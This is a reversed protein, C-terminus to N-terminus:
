SNDWWNIRHAPPGHPSSTSYCFPHWSTIMGGGLALTSSSSYLTWSWGSYRVNAVAAKGHFARKWKVLSRSAGLACRASGVFIVNGFDIWHPGPRFHWLEENLKPCRKPRQFAPSHFPAMSRSSMTDPKFFPHHFTARSCEVIAPFHARPRGEHNVYFRDIIARRTMLLIKNFVGFSM